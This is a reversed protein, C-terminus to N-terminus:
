PPCTSAPCSRSSCGRVLAAGRLAITLQQVPAAVIAGQCQETNLLLPASGGSRRSRGCAVDSTWQVATLRRLPVQRLPARRRPGCMDKWSSLSNLCVRTTCSTHRRETLPASELFDLDHHRSISHWAKQAFHLTVVPAGGDSVSDHQHCSTYDLAQSVDRFASKSHLHLLRAVSRRRRWLRVTFAMFHAM